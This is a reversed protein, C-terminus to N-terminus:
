TVRIPKHRDGAQSALMGAALAALSALAMTRLPYDVISHLALVLLTGIAVLRHERAAQSRHWLRGLLVAAASLVLPALVGADILLELYDNHVRNPVTADLVELREFPAFARTFTGTGSGAPWFSQATVWADGWLETRFGPAEGFRARVAALRTAELLIAAGAITAGVAAIATLRKGTLMAPRLLVIQVAAVVTILLIGARSGTLLAALLLVAQVVAAAPWLRRPEAAGFTYATAALSGVLFLDVAANRNAFVGTIWNRHTESYLYGAGSAMQVVGLLASLLAAGAVVALCLRMGTRDLRAAALMLIAPPIMALLSAVTLHPAVSLSRWTDESAVLALSGHMLERGPLAQWVGPPLPVLHLMPVALVLGALWRLEGPAERWVCGQGSALWWAALVASGLQVAMESWPNPSGGGGLTLALALYAAVIVARRDHPGSM